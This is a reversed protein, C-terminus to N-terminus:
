VYVLVTIIALLGQAAALRWDEGQALLLLFLAVFTAAQLYVIATRLTM